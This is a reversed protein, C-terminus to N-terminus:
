TSNRFQVEGNDSVTFAYRVRGHAIELGNEIILYPVKVAHDIFERVFGEQVEEERIFAKFGQVHMRETKTCLDTFGSIPETVNEGEAEGFAIFGTFPVFGFYGVSEYM